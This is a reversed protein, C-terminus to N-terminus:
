MAEAGSARAAADRPQTVPVARVINQEVVIDTPGGILILHEVNDRRILVLRRRGEIFVTDIVALRPPQRGRSGGTALRPGAFRRLLWICAMMLALVIVFAIIGKVLLPMEQGFVNDLM